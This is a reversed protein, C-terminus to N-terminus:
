RCSLEQETPQVAGRYQVRFDAYTLRRNFSFFELLEESGYKAVITKRARFLEWTSYKCNADRLVLVGNCYEQAREFMSTLYNEYEARTEGELNRAVRRPKPPPTMVSPRDFMGAVSPDVPAALTRSRRRRPPPPAACVAGCQPCTLMLGTGKYAAHCKQNTNM